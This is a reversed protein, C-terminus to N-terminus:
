KARLAQVDISMQGSLIENSYKCPLLRNCNNNAPKNSGYVHLHPLFCPGFRRPLPLLRPSHESLQKRGIHRTDM